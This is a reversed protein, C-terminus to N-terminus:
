TYQKLLEEWQKVPTNKYKLYAVVDVLSRDFFAFKEESHNILYRDAQQYQNIRGEWLLRSFM